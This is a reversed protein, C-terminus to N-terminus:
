FDIGKRLLRQNSSGRYPIDLDKLEDIYPGDILVDIYKLIDAM